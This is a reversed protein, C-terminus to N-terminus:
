FYIPSISEIHYLTTAAPAEVYFDEGVKKGLIAKGFASYLSVGDPVGIKKNVSEGKFSANIMSLPCVHNLNDNNFNIIKAKAIYEQCESKRRKLDTLQQM